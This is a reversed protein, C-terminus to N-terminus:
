PAGSATSTVTPWNAFTMSLARVLQDFSRDVDRPLGFAGSTELSLFGHLASRYARIADIADDGNLGFGLLVDACIEVVARSVAQDEDDGEAPARQAADYQGPHALAWSRYARSMSVIADEKSRGVASRALTEALAAKARLSIGRRLSAVGDVHKYLSPQRVGLREALVTLTMQELGVEDALRAAEDIVLEESLGVRPV